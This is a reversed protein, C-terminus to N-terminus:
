IWGPLWMHLQWFEFPIQMGIWLPYFFASVLLVAGLYGAVLYVGRDRKWPPDSQTGLLLGICFVLGLILYPEFSISYFQFVTRQLYGLWPLYGVALGALILGVQWERFRILRYYLYLAAVAAAWWILPNGIGTIAESCTTFACGNEGNPYSSYYMSTPRLMFLWGLPSAQYSHPTVLGVHYGYASQHYHWLAALWEPVLGTDKDNAWGRGWGGSGLIWGTWSLLYVVLATPLLSLATLPAQALGGGFWGRLGARRRALLDVAVLYIGFGALFWLGSWKVATAAGFSVGAVLLWPRWALLPGISGRQGGALGGGIRAGLRDLFWHRDMLVTAFGCLAFLMLWNDLIAVRSMVIANGDVAFLLGAIVALLSSAFLKRAVMMLLWVAAIGAMATTVRWGFANDIGFALMGLSILWKGLPPHVVFSSESTLASSDGKAFRENADDGNWSGEYGFRSLSFADKVYYTEDFVLTDPHQLNQLRLVAALLTVLIPAGWHWLWERGPSSLLESWRSEIRGALGLQTGREARRTGTSAEPLNADSSSM